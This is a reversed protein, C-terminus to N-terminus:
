LCWVCTTAQHRPTCPPRVEAVRQRTRAKEQARQAARESHIQRSADEVLSQALAQELQAQELAGMQQRLAAEREEIDGSVALAQQLEHNGGGDDDDDDDDDDGDGDGGAVPHVAGGHHGTDQLSLALAQRLDDDDEDAGGDFGLAASHRGEQLAQIDLEANRTV